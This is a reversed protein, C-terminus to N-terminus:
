TINITFSPSGSCKKKASLKNKPKWKWKGNSKLTQYQARIKIETNKVKELNRNWTYSKGKEIVRNSINESRKRDIRMDIYDLDVLRISKNTKNVVKIRVNKCIDWDAQAPQNAQTVFVGTVALAGIMATKLGLNIM